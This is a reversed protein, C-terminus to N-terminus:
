RQCLAVALACSAVGVVVWVWKRVLGWGLARGEGGPKVKTSSQAASAIRLMM